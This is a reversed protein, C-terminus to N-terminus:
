DTVALEYYPLEICVITGIGYNSDIKISGNNNSIRQKISRLGVGLNSKKVDFGVGNDEIIMNVQNSKEYITINISIETATAHKNINTILEQIIRYITLQLSEPINNLEKEPHIYCKVEVDKRVSFGILDKVLDTFYLHHINRPMLDHSISRIEDYTQNISTIVCDLESPLRDKVRELRMKIAALNGGIGDHLDKSIREREKNQGDVSAKIKQLKHADLLNNIKEENLDEQHIFRLKQTKLRQRYLFLIAGLLLALLVAIVIYVRQMFMTEKQRAIQFEKKSTEYKTEIEFIKKNQETKYLSDIANRYKRAYKRVNKMDSQRAYIFMMNNAVTSLTQYNGTNKALEESEKLYVLEKEYDKEKHFIVSLNALVMSYLNLYGSSKSISKAEILYGKAKEYKKLQYHLAGLNILMSCTNYNDKQLRYIKLSRLLNAKGDKYNKNSYQLLGLSNYAAALLDDSEAEEIIVRLYHEAKDFAGLERHVESLKYYLKHKHKQDPNNEVQQLAEFILNVVKEQNGRISNLQSMRIVSFAFLTDSDVTRSLDLAKDYFVVASDSKTLNEYATALKVYSSVLYTNNKNKLSYKVMERAHILAKDSSMNELSDFQRELNNFHSHQSYFSSTFLFFFLVINFRHICDM